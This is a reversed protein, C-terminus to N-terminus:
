KTDSLDEPKTPKNLLRLNLQSLIQIQKIVLLTLGAQMKFGDFDVPKFTSIDKKLVTLKAAM